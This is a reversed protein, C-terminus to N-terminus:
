FIVKRIEHQGDELTVHLLLLANRKDLSDIRTEASNVNNVELLSRGAADFVQVSQINKATSYLGITGSQVVATLQSISGSIPTVVPTSKHQYVIEFRDNFQGILSTFSYEATKLDTFTNLYKDRLIIKTSQNTFLGDMQALSIKFTGAITVKYGLVIRDTRDFPLQRGQITFSENENISYLSAYSGSLRQGDFDRDKGNTAGEIYGILTQNFAGQANTINLWYRHREGGITGTRFFQTNSSARRMANRFTARTGNALGEVFFGQGSAIRGDFTTPSFGGPTVYGTQNYTAYDDSTYVYQSGNFTIPTTHTWLYITGGLNANAPDSLFAHADIASPYPNGILNWKNTTNVAFTQSTIVGNNPRGLFLATFVSPATISHTQPARIIYGRGATMVQNGGAISNWLGTTANFLYYKDSLTNPSLSHLTFDAVPSSWYTYDYRKVPTTSRKALFIGGGLNGYTADDKTQVLSGGDEVTFLGNNTVNGHVTISADRSVILSAGANIQLDCCVLHTGTPITYSGSHILALQDSNTPMTGDAWGTEDMYQTSSDCDRTIIRASMRRYVGNYRDFDGGVVIKGDIQLAMDRVVSKGEYVLTGGTFGTGTVFTLDRTGDQYIRALGKPIAEFNYQTFNGGLLLKGDPQVCISFVNYGSGIGTNSEPNTVGRNGANFDPDVSGDANLRVISRKDAGNFYDYKGGVFIKDNVVKIDFVATGGTAGNGTTNFTNDYSGNSNLRVIKNKGSYGTFGSFFGGVLIKDDQMTIVRVEGNVTGTGNFTPDPTGDALLRLLRKNTVTNYTTFNGGILIKGDAQPNIALVWGNAGKLSSATPNFTTDLSGDANLRAFSSYGGVTFDGAVLIKGDPLIEVNYLFGSSFAPGTFSNDLSGNANLRAIYKKMVGNYSTFRGAIIIKNLNPGSNYVKSRYVIAESSPSAPGASSGGYAGIAPPPNYAPDLQGPQALLNGM